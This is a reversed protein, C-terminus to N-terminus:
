CLLLITGNEDKALPSWKTVQKGSFNGLLQEPSVHPGILAASAFMVHGLESFHDNITVQASLLLTMM